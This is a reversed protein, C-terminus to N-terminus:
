LKPCRIVQLTFESRAALLLPLQSWAQTQCVVAFSLACLSAVAVIGIMVKAKLPLKNKM